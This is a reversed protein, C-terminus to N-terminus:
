SKNNSNANDLGGKTLITKLKNYSKDAYNIRTICGKQKLLLMVRATMCEELTGKFEKLQEESLTAFRALEDDITTQNCYVRDIINIFQSM